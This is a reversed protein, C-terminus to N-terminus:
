RQECGSKGSNGFDHLLRFVTLTYIRNHNSGMRHVMIYQVGFPWVGGGGVVHQAPPEPLGLQGDQSIPLPPALFYVNLPLVSEM